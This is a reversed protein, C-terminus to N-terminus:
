IIAELFTMVENEVITEVDTGEVAEDALHAATIGTHIWSVPDSKDSVRRFTGYTNQTTKEYQGEFKTLGEYLSSKHEYTPYYPNDETAEIAARSRPVGYPDPIEERKLPVGSNRKRMITYVETPMEGAFGAQGVIGPTGWRFPITLYWGGTRVLQESPTRRYKYIVHDSRRFGPKMDFPPAGQEVMNPLVGTLVIQRAFRGKDVLIINQLYEPLTSHLRSKALAQWRAYVAATVAKVCIETLQDVQETTIGFQSQLGSLDITIPNPM